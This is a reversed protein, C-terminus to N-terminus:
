GAFCSATIPARARRVVRMLATALVPMELRETVGATSLAGVLAGDPTLIPVAVAGYGPVTEQRSVAYGNKRVDVLQDRLHRPDTVTWPTFRCLRSALVEAIKESESYALLAKGSATAHLPARAYLHTGAKSNGGVFKELYVVENACQVSLYIPNNTARVFDVMLPLIARRLNEHSPVRYGLHFLREGACYQNGIRDLIGYKVLETVLRHVTSKPLGTRRAIDSLTLGCSGSEFSRFIVDVKAIVSAQDDQREFEQDM